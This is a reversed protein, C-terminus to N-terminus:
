RSFRQAPVAGPRKIKLWDKTRIGPQYVSDLRKAVLGELSLALVHKYLLEGEVPLHDVVLIREAGRLNELLQKRRVLPLEMVSKGKSVLVDFVCFVVPESPDPGRKRARAHLRDFDSRGIEDLICVEGDVIMNQASVSALSAAIEPFWRTADAGRRSQLRVGADESTSALLRYGDFKIEFGWGPDSFPRAVNSLLMPSLGSLAPPPRYVTM